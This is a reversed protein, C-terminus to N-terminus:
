PGSIPAPSTSCGARIALRELPGLAAGLASIEAPSLESVMDDLLGAVAAQQTQVGKTTVEIWINRHDSVDRQRRVMGLDQLRRVTKAMTPPTVQQHAALETLRARGIGRLYYLVFCQPLSLQGTSFQEYERRRLTATLRFLQLHVQQALDAYDTSSEVTNVSTM